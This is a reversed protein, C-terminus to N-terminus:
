ASSLLAIATPNTAKELKSCVARREAHFANRGSPTAQLSKRPEEVFAFRESCGLIRHACCALLKFNGGNDAFSEGGVEAPRGAFAQWTRPLNSCRERQIFRSLENFNKVQFDQAQKDRYSELARQIGRTEALHRAPHM